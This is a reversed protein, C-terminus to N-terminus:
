LFIYAIHYLYCLLFSVAQGDDDGDGGHSQKYRILDDLAVHYLRAFSLFRDLSPLTHGNEWLSITVVSVGLIGALDEQSLNHRKRYTRLRAGTSKTDVTVWIGSFDLSAKISNSM